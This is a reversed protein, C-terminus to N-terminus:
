KAPQLHTLRVRRAKFILSVSSAKYAAWVLLADLTSLESRTTAVADTAVALDSWVTIAYDGTTAARM